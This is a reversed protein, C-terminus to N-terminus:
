KDALNIIPIFIDAPDATDGEQVALNGKVNKGM